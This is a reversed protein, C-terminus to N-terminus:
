VLARINITSTRIRFFESLINFNTINEQLAETTYKVTQYLEISIEEIDSNDIICQQITEAIYRIEVFGENDLISDDEVLDYVNEVSAIISECEALITENREQM